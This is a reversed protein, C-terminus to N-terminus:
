TINYLAFDYDNLTNLLFGFDGSNQVTFTYWVSQREQTTLCTGYVEQVGYGTYSVHQTYSQACVPIANDCDQEPGSVLLHNPQQIARNTNSSYELIKKNKIDLEEKTPLRGEQAGLTAIFVIFVVFTTLFKNM